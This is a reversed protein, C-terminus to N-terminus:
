FDIVMEPEVLLMQQKFVKQIRALATDTDAEFRLVLCPTTNSCRILGWGDKFEVRIGDMTFVEGEIFQAHQKLRDIFVFKKDDDMDINIEPTSIGNPLEAFVHQSSKVTQSLIELLRAGTYLGDDFGFWREKFFTHGSMEGALPAPIEKMKAKILSHGTKWMLPQGGHERIVEALLRTCKVDYIIPAGPVRKLVDIAYLMLQRDASIITGDNTVVGLRDGDGDFALGVDAKAQKVKNILDRLNKEKSPDPHHNPFTGDVECFLELVECGLERYLQPAVKGAIGNGADVVIKLPKQLVVDSTIRALYDPLVDVVELKGSANHLQEEMIRQYLDQIAEEALTDGGLMMKLGNYNAPNHSGTLMVGSGTKLFHTAFYLVPTPVAGIDIVDCGSDLLGQALAKSLTPGSLRGDRAIAIRQVNRQQAESGIARGLTYVNNETLTEDVIGRIDYARFISQPINNNIQYKM